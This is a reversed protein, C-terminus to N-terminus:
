IKLSFLIRPIPLSVLYNKVHEPTINEKRSLYIGHIEYCLPRTKYIAYRSYKNKEDYSLKITKLFCTYSLDEFNNNYKEFYEKHEPYFKLYDYDFM